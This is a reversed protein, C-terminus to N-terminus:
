LDLSITAAVKTQGPLRIQLTLPRNSYVSNNLRFLVVGGQTPGFSAMSGTAPEIDLPQLLQPSWAYPNVSTDIPVPFYYNGQTDVIDFSDTTMQPSDTQNKAWLFVGYWLQDPGLRPNSVGALYEMDENNYRNLERSIQMQYTVNGANVYSGDNNADAVTGPGGSGCAALLFASALGALVLSVRRARAAFPRAGM